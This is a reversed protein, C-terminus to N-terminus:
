NPAMQPGLRPPTASALILCGDKPSPAASARSDGPLHGKTIIIMTKDVSAAKEKRLLAEPSISNGDRGIKAARM